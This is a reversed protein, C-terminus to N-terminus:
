RPSPPAGSSLLAAAIVAAILAAVLLATLGKAIRFVLEGNRVRLWEAKLVKKTVDLLGKELKRFAGVETIDSTEFFREFDDISNLIGKSEAEKQNLRLRIAAAAENLGLFDPQMRDWQEKSTDSKAIAAGRISHAHAILRAVDARLADIWQQRFESVKQEKSIILGLLSVVGAILAAVIAGIAVTPIQILNM